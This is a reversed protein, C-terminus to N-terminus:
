DIHEKCAKINLIEIIKEKSKLRYTIITYKNIPGRYVNAYKKTKKLIRPFKSLIETFELLKFLFKSIEKDSWNKELYLVIKSLGEAANETWVIEFDM